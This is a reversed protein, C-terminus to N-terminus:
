RVSVSRMIGRCVDPAAFGASLGGVIHCIYSLVVRAVVVGFIEKEPFAFGFSEHLDAHEDAPNPTSRIRNLRWFCILEAPSNLEPIKGGGKGLAFCGHSTAANYGVFAVVTSFLVYTVVLVLKPALCGGQKVMPGYAAIGM